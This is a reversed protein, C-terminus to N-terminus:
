RSRAPRGGGRRTGKLKQIARQLTQDDWNEEAAQRLLRHRKARDKVGLAITLRGWGVKLHELAALDKELYHQKFQLCKNLTSESVGVARAVLKRWGNRRNAVSPNQVLRELQGGAAYYLPLTLPKQEFLRALERVEPRKSVPPQPMSAPRTTPTAM